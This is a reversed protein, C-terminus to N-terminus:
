LLTLLRQQNTMDFQMRVRGFQKDGSGICWVPGEQQADIPRELLRAAFKSGHRKVVVVRNDADMVLAAQGDESLIADKATFFPINKEAWDLAHQRNELRVEGLRLWRVLATVAIITIFSGIIIYLQTM